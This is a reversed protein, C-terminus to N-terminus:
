QAKHVATVFHSAAETEGEHLVDQLSMAEDTHAAYDHCLDCTWGGNVEDLADAIDAGHHQELHAKYIAELHVEVRDFLRRAETFHERLIKPGTAEDPYDAGWLVVALGTALRVAGRCVGCRLM